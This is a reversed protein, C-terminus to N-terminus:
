ASRRYFPRRVVQAAIAQDRIEVALETGVAAFAPSVYAMGIAKGLTPSQTGSTIAGIPQGDALVTYGQRPIGRGTMELCILKRAIGEAKERRLRDGGVMEPKDLRVFKGLGAELASTEADLEHGYLPLTAELRLSDRAGLGVPTIEHAAGAALLAQWIAAIEGAEAMIEFGDEGTYGTRSVLAQAGAVEGREFEYHPMSWVPLRTLEALVAAARPGQLALLGFDDSRDDLKVKEDPRIQARLWDRDVDINAANVVLLFVPHGGADDPLRYVLLDDVTGGEANPILTYQAQGPALAAADNTLTRRLFALGHRGNVIFEGMHSVDFLGVRSRVALHEAAIGAYWVPMEWGGFEVMRAGLARHQEFLPTRKV